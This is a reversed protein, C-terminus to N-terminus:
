NAFGGFGGGGGCSFCEAPCFGSTQCQNEGGGTDGGASGGGSGGTCSDGSLTCCCSAEEPTTCSTYGSEGTDAPKCSEDAFFEHCVECAAQAAVPVPVLLGLLVIGLGALMLNRM